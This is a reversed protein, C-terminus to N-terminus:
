RYGVVDRIARTLFNRGRMAHVYKAYHVNTGVAGVLSGTDRRKIEHTISSRLRGTVVNVMEGSCLQKARGEIKILRKTLEREAGGRPRLVERMLENPDIAM